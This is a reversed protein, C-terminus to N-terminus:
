YIQDSVIYKIMEVLLKERLIKINRIYSLNHLDFNLNGLIDMNGRFV